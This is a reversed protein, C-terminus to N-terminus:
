LLDREDTSKRPAGKKRGWCLHTSLKEESDRFITLTAVGSHTTKLFKQMYHGPGAKMLLDVTILLM